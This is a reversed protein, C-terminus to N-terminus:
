VKLVIPFLSTNARLMIRRLDYGALREAFRLGTETCRDAKVPRWVQVGSNRRCLM